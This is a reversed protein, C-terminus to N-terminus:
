KIPRKCGRHFWHDAYCLVEFLCGPANPLRSFFRTTIRSAHPQQRNGSSAPWHWGHPRPIPGPPTQPSNREPLAPYSPPAPSRGSSSHCKMPGTCDLLVRTIAPWKSQTCLTSRSLTACRNSHAAPPLAPATSDRDAPSYQYHPKWTRHWAPPHEPVPGPPPATAGTGTAPASPSEPDTWCGPAAAGANGRVPKVAPPAGGPFPYHPSSVSEIPIDPSRSAAMASPAVM